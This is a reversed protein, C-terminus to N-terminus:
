SEEVMCLLIISDFVLNIMYIYRCSQVITFFRRNPQSIGSLLKQHYSIKQIGIINHHLGPTQVPGEKIQFKVM